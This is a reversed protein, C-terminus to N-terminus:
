TYFNLLLKEALVDILSFILMSLLIYKLSVRIYINCILVQSAAVVMYLFFYMAKFAINSIFFGYFFLHLIGGM